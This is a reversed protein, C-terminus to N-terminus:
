ATSTVAVFKMVVMCRLTVDVVVTLTVNVRGTAFAPALWVTCTLSVTSSVLAGTFASPKGSVCVHRCVPPVGVILPNGTVVVVSGYVAVNVAGTVGVTNVNVNDIVSERPMVAVGPVVTMVTVHRGTVPSAASFLPGVVSLRVVHSVAVIVSPDFTM